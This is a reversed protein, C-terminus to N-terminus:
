RRRIWRRSDWLVYAFNRSEWISKGGIKGDNEGSKGRLLIYLFFDVRWISMKGFEPIDSCVKEAYISEDGIGLWLCGGFTYGVEIKGCIYQVECGM